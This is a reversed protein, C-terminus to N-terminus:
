ISKIYETPWFYYLCIYWVSLFPLINPEFQWLRCYMVTCWLYLRPTFTPLGQLLYMLLDVIFTYNWQFYLYITVFPLQAEMLVFVFVFRGDETRAAERKKISPQIDTIKLSRRPMSRVLNEYSKLSTEQGLSQLDKPVFGAWLVKPSGWTSRMWSLSGGADHFGQAKGRILRTM